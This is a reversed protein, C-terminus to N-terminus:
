KLLQCQRSLAARGSDQFHLKKPTPTRFICNERHAYRAQWHLNICRYKQLITKFNTHRDRNSHSDAVSSLCTQSNEPVHIEIRCLLTNQIPRKTSNRKKKIEIEVFFLMVLEVVLLEVCCSVMYVIWFWISKLLRSSHTGSIDYRLKRKKKKHIYMHRIHRCCYMM